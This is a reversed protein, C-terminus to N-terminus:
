AAQEKAAALARFGIDSRCFGGPWDIKDIAAYAQKQATALDGAMATVGLVRGGISVLEGDKRATGAHFVTVGDLADADAVGKIVTNKPYSGPYGETAMVVCMAPSASWEVQGKMRELNGKAGAELIDLLDAELRMMLVQCEPDGFRANYEILRPQGDEVILGAYLVGTFPTGEAKMADVTPKIIENIIKTELEADMMHAPSYAGMGGTNPGQDGDFARKHDQASALPLITHGDALAFYSLEEGRMFEEVVIEAGAEGFSNGSLMDEAADLAEQVSEAIIVGKGAALGDAKVVIPATQAEIYPKAQAFDTFREYAATPINYKKCLDKTFGKSGELQAAAESPGFVPIGVEQLRDSLGAVLPAEPGVVVLDVAKEVAFDVLAPIDEAGIDVCAGCSEMGANGPAIYLTECRPSQAIKWALAHERGGSGVLLINM